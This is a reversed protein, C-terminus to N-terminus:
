QCQKHPTSRLFFHPIAMVTGATGTTITFKKGGCHVGADESHECVHSSHFTGCELLSMETGNCRLDDLHIPITGPNEIDGYLHSSRKVPLVDTGTLAFCDTLVLTYVTCVCLETCHM